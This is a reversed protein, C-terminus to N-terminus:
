NESHQLGPFSFPFMLMQKRLYWDELSSSNYVVLLGSTKVYALMQKRHGGM